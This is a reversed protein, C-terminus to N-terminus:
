EGGEKPKRNRKRKPKTVPKPKPPNQKEWDAETQWGLSRYVTAQSEEIEVFEGPVTPVGGFRLPYPPTLKMM